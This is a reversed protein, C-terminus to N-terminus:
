ENDVDDCGAKDLSWLGDAEDVREDVKAYRVGDGLGLPEEGADKFSEGSM